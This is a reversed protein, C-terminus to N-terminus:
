SYKQTKFRARPDRFAQVGAWTHGTAPLAKEIEYKTQKLYDGIDDCASFANCWSRAFVWM